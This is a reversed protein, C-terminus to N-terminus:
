ECIVVYDKTNLFERNPVKNMELLIAEGLKHRALLLPTIEEQSYANRTCSGWGSTSAELARVKPNLPTIAWITYALVVFSVALTAYAAGFLLAMRPRARVFGATRMAKSLLRDEILVQPEGFATLEPETLFITVYISAKPDLSAIEVYPGDAVYTAQRKSDKSFEIAPEHQPRIPLKIVITKLTRNSHNQLGVVALYFTKDVHARKLTVDPVLQPAPEFYVYNVAPARDGLELLASIQDIM